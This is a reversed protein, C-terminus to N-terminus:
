PTEPEFCYWVGEMEVYLRGDVFGYAAGACSEYNTTGNETPVEYASVSQAGIYGSVTPTVTSTGTGERFYVVDELMVAAPLPSNYQYWDMAWQRYCFVGVILVLMVAAVIWLGRKKM